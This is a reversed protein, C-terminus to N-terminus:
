FTNGADNCKKYTKILHEVDEGHIFFDYYYAEYYDIGYNGDSIILNDHTLLLYGNEIDYTIVATKQTHNENEELIYEINICIDAPINGKIVDTIFFVKEVSMGRKYYTITEKVSHVKLIYDCRSILDIIKRKNEIILHEKEPRNYYSIYEGQETGCFVSSYYLCNILYFIIIHITIYSM